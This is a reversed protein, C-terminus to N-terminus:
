RSLSKGPLLEMAEGADGGSEVLEKGTLRRHAKRHCEGIVKAPKRSISRKLRLQTEHHRDSTQRSIFGQLGTQTQRIMKWVGGPNQEALEALAALFYCDGLGGQKVNSPKISAFGNEYLDHHVM